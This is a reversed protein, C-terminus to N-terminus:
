NSLVGELIIIDSIIQNSTIFILLINKNELIIILMAIYCIIYNKM